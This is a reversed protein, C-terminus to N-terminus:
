IRIRRTVQGNNEWYTLRKAVVPDDAEPQVRGSRDIVRATVTHEGPDPRIWDHHWFKWAFDEDQGRDLTAQQGPGADISVEVREIAGGWAAGYVRYRGDKETVKAPVSKTLSRGVVKQTFTSEGGESPEERVTVYDRAMFRGAYRTPWIEIRDLWKVNAIGFWGPAILRLPYGHARPLPEGNMEYCLLLDPDLADSLSMSRAFNQPVKKRGFEEEGADHGYFVVEIGDDLVGARELLPALPTGAWRANGIGSVFWPFGNNGACELTYVVERRPLAQLEALSLAMPNRVLGRVGLRFSAPDIEPHDYHAVKFFSDNPTIWEALKEWAFSNLERQAAGPPDPTPDLFPIVTEGESEGWVQAFLGTEFLRAVALTSTAGVMLQRRTIPPSKKMM